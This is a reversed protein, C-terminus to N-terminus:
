DFSTFGRGVVRWLGLRSSTEARDANAGLSQCKMDTCIWGTREKPSRVHKAGRGEKKVEGREKM